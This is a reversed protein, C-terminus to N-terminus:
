VEFHSLMNQNQFQFALNEISEYLNEAPINRNLKGKRRPNKWCTDVTEYAPETSQNRGSDAWLECNVSEYCPEIKPSQFSPPQHGAKGDSQQHVAALQVNGPSIEVQSTREENCRDSDKKKKKRDKCVVSYMEEVQVAQPNLPMGAPCGEPMARCTGAASGAHHDKKVGKLVRAYEAGAAQDGKGTGVVEEEMVSSPEKRDKEVGTVSEYLIEQVPNQFNLNSYTQGPSLLDGLPIQPLERQPVIIFSCSSITGDDESLPYPINISAPRQNKARSNARNLQHLSAASLIEVGEDLTVGDQPIIRNKDKRKCLVCLALLCTTIGVLSVAAFSLFFGGAVGEELTPAM